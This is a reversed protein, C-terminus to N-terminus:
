TETFLICLFTEDSSLTYYSLCKRLNEKFFLLKCLHIKSDSSKLMDQLFGRNLQLTSTSPLLAHNQRHQSHQMGSKLDAKPGSSHISRLHYCYGDSLPQATTLPIGQEQWEGDRVVTRAWVSVSVGPYCASTQLSRRTEAHLCLLLQTHLLPAEAEEEEKCRGKQRGPSPPLDAQCGSLLPPQEAKSM